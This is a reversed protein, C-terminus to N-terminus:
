LQFKALRLDERVASMSQKRFCYITLGVQLGLIAIIAFLLIMYCADNLNFM